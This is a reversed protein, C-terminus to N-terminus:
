EEEEMGRFDAMTVGASRLREGQKKLTKLEALMERLRERHTRETMALIVDPDEKLRRIDGCLAEIKAAETQPTSFLGQVDTGMKEAILELTTIRVTNQKGNVLRGITLVNLGAADALDKQTRQNESLWRKLNSELADRQAGNLILTKKEM